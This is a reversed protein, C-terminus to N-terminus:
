DDAIQIRKTRSSLGATITVSRRRVGFHGAVLAILAENAKGDIPPAKVHAIWGLEDSLELKAEKAGPKVKIVLQQM